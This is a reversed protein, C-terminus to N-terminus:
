KNKNNRAQHQWRSTLTLWPQIHKICPTIIPVHITYVLYNVKFDSNILDM